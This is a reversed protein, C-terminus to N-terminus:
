LCAVAASDPPRALGDALRAWSRGGDQSRLPGTSAAAWVVQPDAPAPALARIGGGGPLAVPRLPGDFGGAYLGQATGALVGGAGVVLSTISDAPAPAGHEHGAHQDAASAGAAPTAAGAPLDVRVWVGGGDRSVYLADGAAVLTRGDPALAVADLYDGRLGVPAWAAGGLVSPLQSIAPADAVLLPAPVLVLVFAAWFRRGAARGAWRRLYPLARARYHWVHWTTPLLAWVSTLLHMEVLGAYIRGPVPLLVLAGTVFVAAYLTLLSWSLWRQWPVVNPVGAVRHRFGARAVKALVFVGGVVGVYVHVGDLSALRVPAPTGLRVLLYFIGTGWAASVLLALALGLAGLSLRGAAPRARALFSDGVRAPRVGM